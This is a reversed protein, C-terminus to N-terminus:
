LYTARQRPRRCSCSSVTRTGFPKPLDFGREIAQRGPIPFINDYTKLIRDREAQNLMLDPNQARLQGTGVFVLVIAFALQRVTRAKM